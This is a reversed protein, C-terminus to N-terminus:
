NQRKQAKERRFSEPKERDPQDWTGRHILMKARFCKLVLLCEKRAVTKYKKSEPVM